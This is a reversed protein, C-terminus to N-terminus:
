LAANLNLPKIVTILAKLITLTLGIKASSNFERM